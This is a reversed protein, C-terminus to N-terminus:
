YREITVKTIIVPQLPKDNSDTKVTAIKDIIDMGEFVQGFVSYNGNLFSAEEHVIYFQSGISNPMASKAWAVAGPYHNLNLAGPEDGLKTGEGKYSHGGTGTGEPDGGQIMFGEIIRHFILNDYYGTKALEIFNKTLEPAQKQFFKFKIMGMNTEIVAIEENKEPLALQQEKTLAGIPKATMSTDNTSSTLEKIKEEQATSNDIYNQDFEQDPAQAPACATLSSFVLILLAIKKM